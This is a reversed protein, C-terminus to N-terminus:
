DNLIIYTVNIPGHVGVVRVLEIDVTSSPGSIHVMLSPFNEPDNQYMDSLEEMTQTMRPKITSRRLIAIHTLPLLGISRGTKATMAQMVTGTEAIAMMPFTIGINADQANAINLAGSKDNDWLVFTLDEKGEGTEFAKDIAYDKIEPVDPYIVKGGGYEEIVAMLTEALNSPDTERFKISLNNCENKFAELLEDQNLGTMLNYQPGHSYDMPEVHDPIDNRGLALSVDHLFSRRNQANLM